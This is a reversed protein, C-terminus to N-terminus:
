MGSLALLVILLTVGVLLVVSAGMPHRSSDPRGSQSSPRDDGADVEKRDVMPADHGAQCCDRWGRSMDGWVSRARSGGMARSDLVAERDRVFVENSLSLGVDIVEM